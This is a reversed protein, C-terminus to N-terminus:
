PLTPSLQMIMSCINRGLWVGWRVIDEAFILQWFLCRSILFECSALKLRVSSTLHCESDHYKLIVPAGM